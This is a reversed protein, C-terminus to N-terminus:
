WSLVTRMPSVPIRATSHSREKKPYNYNRKKVHKRVGSPGKEDQIEDLKRNENEEWAKFLGGTPDIAIHKARKREFYDKVLESTRIRSLKETPTTYTFKTRSTHSEAFTFSSFPFSPLSHHSFFNLPPAFRPTVDVAATAFRM